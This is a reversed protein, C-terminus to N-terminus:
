LEAFRPMFRLRWAKKIESSTFIEEIYCLTM